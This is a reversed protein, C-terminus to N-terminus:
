ALLERLRAAIAEAEQQTCQVDRSLFAMGREQVGAPRPVLWNHFHPIGELLVVSYIREAGTVQRLAVYVRGLLAGYTAAEYPSMEAYDLFHRRSEIFLTGLPGRDPPAHCVCWYNDAIVYGGPPPLILGAHKQCILCEAM